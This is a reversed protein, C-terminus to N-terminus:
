IGVTEGNEGLASTKERMRSTNERIKGSELTKPSQSYRFGFLGCERRLM